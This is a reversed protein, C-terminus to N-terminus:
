YQLTGNNYIDGMISYCLSSDKTIIIKNLGWDSEQGSTKIFFLTTLILLLNIKLILNKM